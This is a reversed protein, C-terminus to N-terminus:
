RAAITLPRVGATPQAGSFVMGEIFAANAASMNQFITRRLVVQGAAERFVAVGAGDAVGVADAAAISLEIGTKQGM